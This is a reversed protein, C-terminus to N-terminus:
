YFKEELGKTGDPHWRDFLANIDEKDTGEPFVFWDGELKDDFTFPLDTMTKWVNVVLENVNKCEFAFGVDDVIRVKFGEIEEPDHHEQMLRFMAWLFCTDFDEFEATEHLMDTELRVTYPPEGSAFFCNEPQGYFKEYTGEM